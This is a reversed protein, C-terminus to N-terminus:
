VDQSLGGLFELYDALRCHKICYPGTPDEGSPDSKVATLIISMRTYKSGIKDAADTFSARPFGTTPRHKARWTPRRRDARSVMQPSRGMITAVCTPQPLYLGNTKRHTSVGGHEANGTIAKVVWRFHLLCSKRQCAATNPTAPSQKLVRLAHLLHFNQHVRKALGNNGHPSAAELRATM